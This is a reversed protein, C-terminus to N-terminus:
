NSCSASIDMEAQYLSTSIDALGLMTSFLNDHSWAKDAQAKLCDRQQQQSDPLWIIQPVHTQTTPAMWYPLGHLYIGDEGLSEGHDSVYFLGRKFASYSDLEDILQSLVADTTAITNDYANVVQQRPCEDLQASECEPLFAKYQQPSRKSYDPGHSGVMHVVLLTNGKAQQLYGRVKSPLITDQCYTDGGCAEPTEKEPTIQESDVRDCMSKCGSNNDVWVVNFGASKFVDLLNSSHKALTEDYQDKTLYSFMCPVSVATATGCSSVKSFNIVEGSDVKQQLMPTTQREYGNLGFNQARATEGVVLVWLQPKDSHSQLQTNKAVQMFEPPKNSSLKEQAVKVSASIWNLPTAIYKIERHERFLSAYTGYQSFLVVVIALFTVVIRLLNQRNRRIWPESKTPLWAVIAAPIIGLFLLYSLLNWTFLERVEAPNTELANILMSDDILTGYQDYFYRASASGILLVIAVAKVIYAQNFISLVIVNIAFLLILIGLIPLIPNQTLWSAIAEFLPWNLVVALFLSVVYILKAHSFPVRFFRALM